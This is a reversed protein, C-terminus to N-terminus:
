RLAEGQCCGVLLLAETVKSEGTSGAVWGLARHCTVVVGTVTLPGAKHSQVSGRGRGKPWGARLSNHLTGSPQRDSFHSAGCLGTDGAIKHEDSGGLAEEASHGESPWLALWSSTTLTTYEPSHDPLNWASLYDLVLILSSLAKCTFFGAWNQLSKVGTVEGRFNLERPQLVLFYCGDWRHRWSASLLTLPKWTVIFEYSTTKHKCSYNLSDEQPHKLPDSAGRTEVALLVLLDQKCLTDRDNKDLVNGEINHTISLLITGNWLHDLWMCLSARYAHFCLWTWVYLILLM